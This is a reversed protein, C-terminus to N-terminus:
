LGVLSMIIEGRDLVQVGSSFWSLAFKALQGGNKSLTLDHWTGTTSSQTRDFDMLILTGFLWCFLCWRSIVLTQQHFVGLFHTPKTWVWWWLEWFPLTQKLVKQLLRHRFIGHAEKRLLRTTMSQSRNVHRNGYFSMFTSPKYIPNM